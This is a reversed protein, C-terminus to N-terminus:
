RQAQLLGLARARAIAQTRHSVGLKGYINSIHRKVTALSIVLQDAIEQNRLGAALLSLVELERGTLPEILLQAGVAQDFAALLRGVYDPMVGRALARQLLAAMPAGEDVFTRVYGEPEALSLARELCVLAQPLRNQAQLALSQLVLTEIVRGMRGASEACHLLRDLLREAQGPNGQALLVRALTLHGFEHLFDLADDVTLREDLGAVRRSSATEVSSTAPEPRPNAALGCTQAWRGAAVLNGQALWLRARWAEVLATEWTSRHQRVVKAAKGIFALAEDLNGLTQELRAHAIYGDRLFVFDGGLEALRLGEQLYRSAATLDNQERLLDGMGIREIGAFVADDQEDVFQMAEQYIALAEGLRGQLVRLQALYHISSLYAAAHQMARSAASVEELAQSAAEANGDLFHAHGLHLLAISHRPWETEPVLALARQSFAIADAVSGTFRAVYARLRYVHPLLEQAASRWEGQLQSEVSQLISEAVDLQGTVTLAAAYHLSPAPQSRVLEGPLTQMWSLLTRQKSLRWLSFAVREILRTALEFDQAQLAHHVADEMLGNHECWAAARRHLEPVKQPQTQRLRDRLLDAFLHHYRYWRREHDLPVTFLNTQELRELMEQSLPSIDSDVVADCLPGCLRDLICTQLLFAQVHSPQRSFVEEVLYDMVYHHSGAFAEIFDAVEGGRQLSQLSLAALQLGAVWGETRAELAAIQRSTLSLGMIENLFVAAEELTFRLDDVRVETLEGRARMRALPLPPDARTIIVLRMQPPMNDLLFTLAEHIPWATVLHYDDLALIVKSRDAALENILTAVLTTPPPPQPTRLVVQVTQGWDGNIQQLAAVLYALFRNPDNDGDDLSLWAFPQNAQQLWESVLTTKGFGAPASVLTLKGCLGQNLRALLHPRPVCGPRVEPVFLKTLLLPSELM